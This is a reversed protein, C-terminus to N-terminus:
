TTPGGQPVRQGVQGLAKAMAEDGPLKVEPEHEIPSVGKVRVGHSYVLEAGYWASVLLGSSGVLSLMLPFATTPGKHSRRLLVNLGYAALLALNLAGHLNAIRKSRSRRPIKLYDAAGTVGAALGGILGGVMTHYAVDAYVDKRTAVHLLDMVLSYPLLGAPIVILQTHLPHGALTIKPM